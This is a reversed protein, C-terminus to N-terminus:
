ANLLVPVTVAVDVKEWIRKTRHYGIAEDPQVQYAISM